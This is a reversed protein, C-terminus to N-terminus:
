DETNKEFYFPRKNKSDNEMENNFFYQKEITNNTLFPNSGM